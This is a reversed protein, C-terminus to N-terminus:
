NKEYKSLMISLLMYEVLSMIYLLGIYSLPIKFILLNLFVVWFNLCMPCSLLKAFFNNKFGLFTAFYIYTNRIFDEYSKIINLRNLKLAKIYEYFFNTKFWLFICFASMSSAIILDLIM